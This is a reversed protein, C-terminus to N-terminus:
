RNTIKKEVKNLKPKNERTFLVAGIIFFMGFFAGSTLKEDFLMLGTLTGVVPEITAFIAALSPSLKKLGATYTWYPLITSVLVLGALLWWFTGGGTRVAQMTNQWDIVVGGACGAFIFTWLVIAIGNYSRNQAFRGFITYLAYFFASGFGLLLVKLSLFNSGSGLVGSILVCGIIVSILSLIKGFSLKERFFVRSMLMVFAPSTYLLVVAINVTTLNIASFYCFNFLTVSLIGCGALCWIDRIRIKFVERCATAAFGCLCLMAGLARLAAIDTTSLGLRTLGRVFVGLLGWSFGAILVLFTGNKLLPTHNINM